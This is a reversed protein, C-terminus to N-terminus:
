RCIDGRDESVGGNQKKPTKKEKEVVKRIYYEKVIEVKMM